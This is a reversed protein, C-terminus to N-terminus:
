LKAKIGAKGIQNEIIIKRATMHFDFFIFISIFIKVSFVKWKLTLQAYVNTSNPCKGVFFM